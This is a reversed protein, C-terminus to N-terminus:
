ASHGAVIEVSWGNGASASSMMWLGHIAETSALPTAARPKRPRTLYRDSISRQCTWGAGGDEVIGEM